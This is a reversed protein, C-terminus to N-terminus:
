TDAGLRIWHNWVGQLWAVTYWVSLAVMGWQGAKITTYFWFPQSALGIVAGWRKLQGRQNILWIAAAGTVLIFVQVFLGM